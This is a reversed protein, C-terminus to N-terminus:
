DESLEEVIKELSPVVDDLGLTIESEDVTKKKRKTSRKKKPSPANMWEYGSRILYDRRTENWDPVEVYDGDKKLKYVSM